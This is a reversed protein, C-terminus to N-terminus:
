KAYHVREVEYRNQQPRGEAPYGVPMLCFPELDDPMNLVKKVHAMRDPGPCIGIWTAGLGLETIELLMTETSNALDIQTDEAHVLKTEDTRYCPVICLPADKVFGSYKHTQSLALKVEPNTVVYYEWPQQNGSTPAQMGARLIKEIKEPEVQKDEYKRISIREFISNMMQGGMLDKTYEAM